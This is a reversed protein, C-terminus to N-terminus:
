FLSRKWSRKIKLTEQIKEDVEDPSYTKAGRLRSKESEFIQQKIDEVEEKLKKNEKKM